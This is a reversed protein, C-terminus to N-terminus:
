GQSFSTEPAGHCALSSPPPLLSSAELGPSILDGNEM